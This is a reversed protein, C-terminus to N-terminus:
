QEAALRINLNFEIGSPIKIIVPRILEGDTWEAGSFEGQAQEPSIVDWGMKTDDVEWTTAMNRVDWVKIAGEDRKPSKTHAADYDVM